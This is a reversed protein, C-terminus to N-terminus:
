NEHEDGEGWAFSAAEAELRAAQKAMFMMVAFPARLSHRRCLAGMALLVEIEDRQRIKAYAKVAEMPEWPQGQAEMDAGAAACCQLPYVGAERDKMGWYRTIAKITELYM